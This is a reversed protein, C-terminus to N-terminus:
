TSFFGPWEALQQRAQEASLRLVQESVADALTREAWYHHSVGSFLRRRFLVLEAPAEDFFGFLALALEIDKSVPARGYAAARRLAVVVAGSLVDEEHEGEVLQLKDSFRQALSLAYGQDPGQTGRGKGSTAEKADLEGPRHAVWPQPPALRFTPRVEDALEIPAFKPQTM